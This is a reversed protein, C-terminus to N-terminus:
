ELFRPLAWALLAPVELLACARGGGWRGRDPGGARSFLQGPLGTLDRRQALDAARDAFCGVQVGRQRQDGALGGFHHAHVATRDIQEVALALVQDELGGRAQRRLPYADGPEAQAFAQGPPRGVLTLRRRRGVRRGIRAELVERLRMLGEELGQQRNGQGRSALREARDVDLRGARVLVGLVLNLEEADDGIEGAPRELFGSEVVAHPALDHLQARQRLHAFGQRRGEVQFLDQPEQDLHRGADEVGRQAGEHQQIPFLQHERRRMRLATEGPGAAGEMDALADGPHGGGRALRDGAGIEMGIRPEAGVLQGVGASLDRHPRYQGDGEPHAVPGQADHVAVGIAGM